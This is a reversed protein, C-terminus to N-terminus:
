IKYLLSWPVIREFFSDGGHLYRASQYKNKEQFSYNNIFGHDSFILVPTGSNLNKIFPLLQNRTQFIIEQIFQSYEAKSTHVKDDIYSFKVINDQNEKFEDVSIIEGVFGEKRIEEIQRETNTPLYSLLSGEEIVRLSVEEKLIPAIVEWIDWRMGDLLLRYGTQAKVNKLLRNFKDTILEDITTFDSYKATNEKVMFQQQKNFEKFKNQYQQIVKKVKNQKLQVPIEHNLDYKQSLKEIKTVYYELLSLNNKYLREWEKINNIDHETDLLDLSINLKLYLIILELIEEKEELLFNNNEKFTKLEGALSELYEFNYHDNELLKILRITLNKMLKLSFEENKIVMIIDKLDSLAFINLISSILQKEQLLSDGKEMISNFIERNEAKILHDVVEKFTKGLSKDKLYNTIEENLINKNFLKDTKLGHKKIWFNIVILLSFEGSNLKDFVPLLEPFYKHLFLELEERDEETESKNDKPGVIQIYTNEDFQEAGMLWEQFINKLQSPSFTRGILNDYLDNLNRELVSIDEGLAQNIRKIINRNINKDLKDLLNDTEPQLQILNRIPRTFRKEGAAEMNELYTEIKKKVSDEQLATLYQIIGSKISKQIQKIPKIEVKDGPQFECNCVPRRRLSETNLQNCEKRLVRSLQRTVKVLDDKVSITEINSLQKLIKYSRSQKLKHYPSFKESGLQKQHEEYYKNIYLQQFQRFSSKLKKFYDDEYIVAEERMSDELNNYFDNLEKYKEESPIKLQPDSLYNKIRRYTSLKEELFTKIKKVRTLYRDINPVSRYQAAFRELGEESSYSVKIENLVERVKNIYTLMQNLDFHEMVKRNNKNNIAVKINTIKEELERKQETLYDWIQHQLPLSFPQKKFRPPVLSCSKLIKQFESDIIEGYDVFKIRSFNRISLNKLSIKKHQSYPTLYGAYILTLVLLRFQVKSLGYPGKRLKWYIENLNTKGEQLYSFFSQLLQNNGPDIELRYEKKLKKILNLPQLFSEIINKVKNFDQNNRKIEGSQLFNKELNEIQHNGAVAQYPSISSHAPYRKQLLSSAIDKFFVNFPRKKESDPEILKKGSGDLIVGRFYSQLFTKDIKDQQEQLLQKLTNKVDKGTPTSDNEYEKKLIQYALVESLFDKQQLEEPIWFAFGDRVEGTLEPLVVERLYERDEEVKVAYGIVLVFDDEDKILNETMNDINEMTIERVPMFLRYGKRETNQWYISYRRKSNKFFDSLPLYVSEVLKGPQSFIRTDDAFFNSRIYDTKKKIILNVDAELDIYYINNYEDEREDLRLYAGHHYLRNLINNIFEYNAESELDTVRYLLMHAMDKVTYEKEIPSISFLILLKILQMGIKIEDEQLISDIEQLYYQYVKEYYPATEMMEKIRDTFHNFIVDPTLLNDAKEQLMGEIGRSEDGRLQYHIFDVIGRHQSFLPKL